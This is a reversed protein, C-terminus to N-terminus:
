AAATATPAGEQTGVVPTAPTEAEAAPEPVAPKNLVLDKHGNAKYYLMVDAGGKWVHARLTALTMTVPLKEQSNAQRKHLLLTSSVQEYCYLDLYEEPKLAEPDEEGEHPAEIREAVYALIKKVRLM